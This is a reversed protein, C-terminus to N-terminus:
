RFEIARRDQSDISIVATPSAVYTVGGGKEFQEAQQTKRETTVKSPM